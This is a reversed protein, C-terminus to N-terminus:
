SFPVPSSLELLCAILLIIRYLVISLSLNPTAKDPEKFALQLPKIYEVTYGGVRKEKHGGRMAGADADCKGKQGRRGCSM